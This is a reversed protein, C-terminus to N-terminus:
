LSKNLISAIDSVELEETAKVDTKSSNFSIMCYTCATAVKPAKTESIDRLRNNALHEGEELEYWMNGGGMGCCRSTEKTNKMEKIKVGPISKLIARPAAYGNHHRGLYCPDHVTVQENVTKTPKVKGTKILEYLLESHHIVNHKWGDFKGYEEGLTHMCHPCITVIKGFDYQAFQEINELVIEYFSYEDGFRRVPDGCCKENAGMVAFDVGAKKFVEITDKVVKQNADDLSGACGIYFLYDVKKGAEIIPLDLDKAWAFRDEQAIGWPNGNNKIKQVADGAAPPIEGLTLTKYRKLEMITSVHENNVPCEEMCAGCTTCADIENAQYIPNEWFDAEIKENLKHVGGAKEFIFDRMKTIILKPDLNKGAAKAPCVETCRGCEICALTDFKQKATLESIKGLGFTEADENEFDMPPLVAARRPPTILAGAISGFIHFFKSYGLLAIFGMTAFMHVFWLSQYILVATQFRLQMNEFVGAIFWGIPAWIKEGFPMGTGYIRLGEVLFGTCILIILIGYMCLEATPKTSELHEPRKIYRRYFALAIGVILLVGAIDSWFSLIIYTFGNFIKIPTDAEIGVVITTITLVVFSFYIFGHALAIFPRKSMKGQFFILHAFASWNIRKPLIKKLGKFGKEGTVFRYRGWLGRLMIGAGVLFLVYMAVKFFIPISWMMERTALSLDM